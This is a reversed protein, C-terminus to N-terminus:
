SPVVPKQPASALAGMGRETLAVGVASAFLSLAQEHSIDDSVEHDLATAAAQQVVPRQEPPFSSLFEMVGEQTLLVASTQEDQALVQWLKM